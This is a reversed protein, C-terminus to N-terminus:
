SARPPALLRTLFHEANELFRGRCYESCFVFSQGEFTASLTPSAQALSMGCVPDRDSDTAPTAPRGVSGAVLAKVLCLEDALLRPLLFRERVREKGRRTLEAARGPHRLLDILAQACAEISGVLIGGSGDAMQLPIGGAESAVVPTSKWLAESVVLGFGERISKQVAVSSLRQFANVEINGVGTLNTFLHISPDDGRAATLQQYIDWGEPDDLAMSGVMALQLEPVAERALRYARVVGLPDKWADFRSVQTVLPRKLDVGIWNLVERCTQEPLDM